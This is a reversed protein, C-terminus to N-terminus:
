NMWLILYTNSNAKEFNKIHMDIYILEKDEWWPNQRYVYSFDM